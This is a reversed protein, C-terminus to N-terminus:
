AELGFGPVILASAAAVREAAIEPVGCAALLRERM